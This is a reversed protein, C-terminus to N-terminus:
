KRTCYLSGRKCEKWDPPLLQGQSFKNEKL